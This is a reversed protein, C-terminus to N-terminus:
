ATGVNDAALSGASLYLRRAAIIRDSFVPCFFHPCLRSGAGTKAECESVNEAKM